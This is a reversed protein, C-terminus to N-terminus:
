TVNRAAAAASVPKASASQHPRGAIAQSRRWLNPSSVVLVSWRSSASRVTLIPLFSVGVIPPLKRIAASSTATSSQPRSSLRCSTSATSSVSPKAATPKTSSKLFSVMGPQLPRETRALISPRESTEPLTSSPKV